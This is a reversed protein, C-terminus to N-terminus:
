GHTNGESIIENYYHELGYKQFYKKVESKNPQTLHIIEKIDGLERFKRDPDNQIAFLKLAILHEPSVVPVEIDELVLKNKISEFIPKATEEDIYVFDVRDSSTAHLHNSFGESRHLTEFGISELHEIIADQYKFRTIFDVDKTTRTYGYAYLAFAGVVAYDINEKKFYVSLRIILDKISM